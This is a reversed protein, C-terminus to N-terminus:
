KIFPFVSYWLFNPSKRASSLLDNDFYHMSRFNFSFGLFWTSTYTCKKRLGWLPEMINETAVQKKWGAMSWFCWSESATARPTAGNTANPEDSVQSSQEPCCGMWVSMGTISGYFARMGHPGISILNFSNFLGGPTTIHTCFDGYKENELSYVGSTLIFFKREMQLIEWETESKEM